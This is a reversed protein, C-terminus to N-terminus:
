SRRGADRPGPTTVHRRALLWGHSGGVVSESPRARARRRYKSCTARRAESFEDLRRPCFPAEAGRNSFSSGVAPSSARASPASSSRSWRGSCLVGRRREFFVFTRPPAGHAHQIRTNNVPSSLSTPPVLKAGALENEREHQLGRPSSTLRDLVSALEELAPPCAIRLARRARSTYAVARTDSFITEDVRNKSCRSVGDVVQTLCTRTVRDALILSSTFASALPKRRQQHRRRLLHRQAHRFIM